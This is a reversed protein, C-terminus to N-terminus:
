VNKSLPKSLPTKCSPCRSPQGHIPTNCKARPCHQRNDETRFAYRTRRVPPRYPKRASM